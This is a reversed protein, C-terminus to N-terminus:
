SGKILEQPRIARGGKRASQLAAYYIATQELLVDRGVPEIGTRFFGAMQTLLADYSVEFRIEEGDAEAGFLKMVFAYWRAGPGIMEVVGRAGPHSSKAGYEVYAVVPGIAERADPGSPELSVSQVKEVGVGLVSTLAAIAHPLYFGLHDTPGTMNFLRIAGLDRLKARAREGAATHYLASASYVRADHARAMALIRKADAVSAAFPRNYFIRRGAELFPRSLELYRTPFLETMLIGDVDKGVDAPASVVEAGTAKAFAASAAPDADWVRVPRMGFRAGGPQALLEGWVKGHTGEGCGVIGIKLEREGHRDMAEEADVLSAAVAGVGGAIVERRTTRGQM